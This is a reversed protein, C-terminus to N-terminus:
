HAPSLAPVLEQWWDSPVKAPMGGEYLVAVRVAKTLSSDPLRRSSSVQAGTYIGVSYLDVTGFLTSRTAKARLTLQQGAVEAAPAHQQGSLAAALVGIAIAVTSSFVRTKRTIV